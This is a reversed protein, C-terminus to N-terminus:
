NDTQEVSQEITVIGYKEKLKQIDVAAQVSYATGYEDYHTGTFIFQNNEKDEKFNTYKNKYNLEIEQEESSIFDYLAFIGTDPKQIIFTSTDPILYANTKSSFVESVKMNGIDVIKYEDNGDDILLYNKYIWKISGEKDFSAGEVAEPENKGTNWIYLQNYSDGYGTTYFIVKNDIRSELIEIGRISNELVGRSNNLYEVISSKDTNESSFRPIGEGEIIDLKTEAEKLKSALDENNKLLETYDNKIKETETTLSNLEKKLDENEKVAAESNRIEEYEKPGVGTEASPPLMTCGSLVFTSTVAIMLIAVKRRM